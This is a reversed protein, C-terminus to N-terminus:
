LFSRTIGESAVEITFHGARLSSQFNMLLADQGQFMKFSRPLSSVEIGM